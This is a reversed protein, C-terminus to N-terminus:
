KKENLVEEYIKILENYYKDETYQTIAKQYGNKGHQVSLEPNNWYKLICNKLEEINGPKFLLGNINDEVIEPIGGINSAIVPKGNIFSEINTMGFIEFCNSPLVTSICNQYIDTIEERNKFGLFEINDLNNEQAYIKLNNEEAGTGVIKLNIDKPLDKMAELLYKVGKEKSLRGVYLFYGKNTYKPATKLEENSLFNNITIIQNANIGMNANTIVKKLADSPTIFKNIYKLNYSDIYAAIARRISAEISKKACKNSICPLFNKNKCYQEKCIVKDKYMLTAAPCCRADHITLIKPINIDTNFIASSLGWYSQFHIIDPQIIKVFKKLDKKAQYNSYYKIPNRLYDKTGSYYPTFFEAYKYNNEFYPKKDMAWYFVQHGYKELIKYTDYAIKQGGGLPSFLSDVILIKM